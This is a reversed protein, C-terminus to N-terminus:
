MNKLMYPFNLWRGCVVLANVTMRADLILVLINQMLFLPPKGWFLHRIIYPCWMYNQNLSIVSSLHHGILAEYSYCKHLGEWLLLTSWTTDIDTGYLCVPRFQIFQVYCCAKLDGFWITSCRGGNRYHYHFLIDRDTWRMGRCLWRHGEWYSWTQKTSLYSGRIATIRPEASWGVPFLAPRCRKCLGGM